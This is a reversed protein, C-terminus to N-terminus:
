MSAVVIKVADPHAREALMEVEDANAGQALYDFTHSKKLSHTSNVPVTVQVTYTFM